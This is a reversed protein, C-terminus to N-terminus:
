KVLILDSNMIVHFGLIQTAGFLKKFPAVGGFLNPAELLCFFHTAGYLKKFPAVLPELYSLGVIIVVFVIVM